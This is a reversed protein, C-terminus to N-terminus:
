PKYYYPPNPNDFHEIDEDIDAPMMERCKNYYSEWLVHLAGNDKNGIFTKIDEHRPYHMENHFFRVFEGLTQNVYMLDRLSVSVKRDLPITDLGYEVQEKISTYHKEEMVREGGSKQLWESRAL